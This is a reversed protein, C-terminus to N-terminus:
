EQLRDPSHCLNYVPCQPCKPTRATCIYRGHLILWHHANQLYKKPIIKLLDSEVAQPTKGRSLGLRHALRFVHTDVAIAPHGYLTNLVVNATKRGVGPLKELEERTNPIQGQHQTILLHSLAIVNKAKTRFLGITRIAQRLNEEGWKLMAQPTQIKPFFAQTAKNVAVDTTQASMVVAILLQYSNTYALETTPNPNNQQWIQFMAKVEASKAKPPLKPM